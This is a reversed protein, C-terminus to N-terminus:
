VGPHFFGTKSTFMYLTTGLFALMISSSCVLLIEKSSLNRDKSNNKQLNNVQVEIGLLESIESSKLSQNTRFIKHLGETQSSTSSVETEEKLITIATDVENDTYRASILVSRIIEKPANPQVGNIKLLSELQKRNIM